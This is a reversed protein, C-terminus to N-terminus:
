SLVNKLAMWVCVKDVKRIQEVSVINVSSLHCYILPARILPHLCILFQLFLLEMKKKIVFEQCRFLVAIIQM